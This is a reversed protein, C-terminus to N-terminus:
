EIGISNKPPAYLYTQFNSGTTDRGVKATAREHELGEETDCVMVVGREEIALRQATLVQM